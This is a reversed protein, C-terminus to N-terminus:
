EAKPAKEGDAKAQELKEKEENKAMFEYYEELQEARTKIHGSKRAEVFEEGDYHRCMTMWDLDWMDNLAVLKTWMGWFRNWMKTHLVKPNGDTGNNGKALYEIYYEPTGNWDKSLRHVPFPGDFSFANKSKLVGQEMDELNYDQTSAAARLLKAHMHLSPKLVLVGANINDDSFQPVGAYIYDCLEEGGKGNEIIAKDEPSLLEKKCNQRPVIDFIGDINEVPFADADLFVLLEWEVEKWLNLKSLVDIWRKTFIVEDPIINDLLEIEKVIAGQGKLIDRNEEPIFPCVFVIIPYISRYDSWLLRWIISQTAEFYPARTDPDRTCYFTAFARKSPEKINNPPYKALSKFDRRPIPDKPFQLIADESETLKHERGLAGARNPQYHPYSFFLFSCSVFVVAVLIYHRFARPLAM